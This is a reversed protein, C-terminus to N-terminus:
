VRLPLSDVPVGANEQLAGSGGRSRALSILYCSTNKMLRRAAADIFISGSQLTFWVTEEKKNAAKEPAGPPLIAALGSPPSVVKIGKFFFLIFTEVLLRVVPIHSRKLRSDRTEVTHCFYQNM